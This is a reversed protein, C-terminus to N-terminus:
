AGHRIEVQKIRIPSDRRLSSLPFGVLSSTRSVSASYSAFLTMLFPVETMFSFSLFLYCPNCILLATAVASTWAPAGCKRALGYFLLGGVIGPLATSIDLSRSTEGFVRSWAVGYLVQLVPTAQTYGAFQIRGTQNFHVVAHQYVWSDIVPAETLPRVAFYVVGYWLVVIGAVVLHFGRTSQACNLRPSM